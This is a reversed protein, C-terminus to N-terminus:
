ECGATSAGAAIYGALTRLDLLGGPLAVDGPPMPDLGVFWDRLRDREAASPAVCTSEPVDVRHSSPCRAEGSRFNEPKVLLKYVLYSSGPGGPDIVPMGVGFRPPDVITTGANPGESERAVRSIATQLLGAASDLRLGLPAKPGTHCPALGCEANALVSLADACSPPTPVRPGTPAARATRFSFHLPVEESETLPAGDFARFGFGTSTEEPLALEVQYLLGREFVTGLAPRYSVVREVVDYVPELLLAQDPRGSYVMLSQRVATKPLIFRDFRVEIPADVPVGCDDPDTPRCETGAGNVPYTALM